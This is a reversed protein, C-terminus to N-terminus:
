FHYGLGIAFGLTNRNYIETSPGFAPDTTSKEAETYKNYLIGIDLDMSENLKYRIGCGGSNSSLEHSMDSQFDETLGVKNYIYGISALLVDSIDYEFGIGIEYTNSDIFEERGELDAEKDFYYNFSVATRLASTMAYEVGLGLIAPIDAKFKFGDPFMGTGDTKTENEMELSTNLEYKIGINLKDSPKLNLGFLPTIATGKQKVDVETDAVMAAYAGAAPNLAALTNFFEFASVMSGDALPPFTPNIQINELTGEYSNVAMIYRAGAAISIMDSVAYTGNLQFGYYVSSGDFAIDASYATTPIGMNALLAPIQSVPIEFSPLGDDFTATGGGANPGFGFSLALKDKKYVAYLDPFLPVNTKGIFENNALTPFNNKINREQIIVQNSFSIHLGDSLQTLGAPNSYTADIDTSANRSLMRLFQASQNTNTVLGGAFAFQTFALLVVMLLIKKM